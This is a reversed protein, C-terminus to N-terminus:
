QYALLKVRWQKQKMTTPATVPFLMIIMVFVMKVKWLGYFTRPVGWSDMSWLKLIPVRPFYSNSYNHLVIIQTALMESRPRSLSSGLCNQVLSGFLNGSDVRFQLQGSTPTPHLRIRFKYTSSQSLLASTQFALGPGWNARLHCKLSWQYLRVKSLYTRKFILWETTLVIRIRSKEM